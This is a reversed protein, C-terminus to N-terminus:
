KLLKQFHNTSSHNLNRYFDSRAPDYNALLVDGFLAKLMESKNHPRKNTIIEIIGFIGLGVRRNWLSIKDTNDANYLRPYGYLRNKVIQTSNLRLEKAIQKYPLGKIILCNLIEIQIHTFPTIQTLVISGKMESCTEPLQEIAVAM